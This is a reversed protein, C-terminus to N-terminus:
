ARAARACRRPRDGQNRLLPGAGAARAGCARCRAAGSPRERTALHSGARARGALAFAPHRRQSRPSRARAGQAPPRTASPRFPLAPRIRPWDQPRPAGAAGARPGFLLAHEVALGARRGLDEALALDHPGFRRGSDSCVFTIAGLTREHASMPVCLYSQYGFIRLLRLHEADRAAGVLLSDPGEPWYDIKGPRIRDPFGHPLNPDVPYRRRLEHVLGIKDADVHAVAVRRITSAEDGLDITCWDAFQPVALRALEGLTAETDFSSALVAS